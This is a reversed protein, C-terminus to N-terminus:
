WRRDRLVHPRQRRGPVPHGHRDGRDGHLRGHRARGAAAPRRGGRGRGDAARRPLLAGQGGDQAGHLQRRLAADRVQGTRLAPLEHLGALDLPARRQRGQGRAPHAGVMLLLLSVVFLWPAVREWTKMPVQFALLAVVFSLVLFAAHRTLFHTHAYRAFKPNDPLAISASYVMVLGWALLAVTVWLLAQDFVQVRAPKTQCAPAPAGAASPSAARGRDAAFSM